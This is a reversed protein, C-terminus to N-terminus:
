DEDVACRIVPRTPVHIPKTVKQKRLGLPAQTILLPLPQIFQHFGKAHSAGAMFDKGALRLFGAECKRRLLDQSVARRFFKNNSLVSDPERETEVCAARDAQEEILAVIPSTKERTM